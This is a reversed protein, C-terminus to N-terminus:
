ARSAAGQRTERNFFIAGLLLGSGIVSIRAIADAERRTLIDRVIGRIVSHRLPCAKRATDLARSRRQIQSRRSIILLETLLVQRM